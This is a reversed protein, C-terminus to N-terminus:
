HGLEEIELGKYKNERKVARLTRYSPKLNDRNNSSSACHGAFADPGYGAKQNGKKPAGISSHIDLHGLTVPDFTGPYIAIRKKVEM